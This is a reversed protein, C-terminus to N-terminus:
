EPLSEEVPPEGGEPRRGGEPRKGEPWREERSEPRGGEPWKEGEPKGGELRGGEPWREGEPKGGEPRGGEPWRGGEPRGGGGERGGATGSVTEVGSIKIEHTQNEGEGTSVQYIKGEELGPVSIIATDFAKPPGYEGLITGDEEMLRITNGAEQSEEWYVVLYNQSSKEGFTQMMGSFFAGLFGMSIKGFSCGISIWFDSSPILSLFARIVDIPSVFLISNDIMFAAAQWVADWFLLIGGKRLFPQSM